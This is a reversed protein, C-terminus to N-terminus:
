NINTLWIIGLQYGMAVGDNQLYVSNILIFHVNYTCLLLVEKMVSRTTKAKIEKQDYIREVTLEIFNQLLVSSFLLIVDCSIM